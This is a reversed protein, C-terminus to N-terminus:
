VARGLAQRKSTKPPAQLMMTRPKDNGLRRAGLVGAPIGLTPGHLEPDLDALAPTTPDRPSNELAQQWIKQAQNDSQKRSSITDPCRRGGAGTSLPHLKASRRRTASIAASMALSLM